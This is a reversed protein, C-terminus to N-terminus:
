GGDAEPKILCLRESVCFCIKRHQQPRLRLERHPPHHQQQHQHLREHSRGGTAGSGRWGVHLDRWIWLQWFPVPGSIFWGTCSVPSYIIKNKRSRNKKSINWMKWKDSHYSFFFLFYKLRVTFSFDPCCNTVTLAAWCFPLIDKDQSKILM